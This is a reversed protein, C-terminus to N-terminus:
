DPQTENGGRLGIEGLYEISDTMEPFINVGDLVIYATEKIGKFGSGEQLKFQGIGQFTKEKAFVKVYAPLGAGGDKGSNSISRGIMMNMQSRQVQDWAQQKVFAPQAHAVACAFLALAYVTGILKM